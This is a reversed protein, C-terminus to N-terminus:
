QATSSHRMISGRGTSGGNLANLNTRAITLKPDLKVAKAFAEAAEGFRELDNLAIGKANYLRASKPEKQLGANAAMLASEPDGTRLYVDSLELFNAASPNIRTAKTYMDIATGGDRLLGYCFGLDVYASDNAPDIRTAANLRDIAEHILDTDVPNADGAQKILAEATKVIGNSAARSSEDGRASVAGAAVALVIALVVRRYRTAFKSTM